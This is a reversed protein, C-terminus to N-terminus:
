FDRKYKFSFANLIIRFYSVNIVSFSIKMEFPVILFENM